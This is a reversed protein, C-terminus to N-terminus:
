LDGPSLVHDVTTTNILVKCGKGTVFGVIHKYVTFTFADGAIIRMRENIHVIVFLFVLFQRVVM